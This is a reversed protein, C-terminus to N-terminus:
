TTRWSPLLPPATRPAQAHCRLIAPYRAANIGLAAWVVGAGTGARARALARSEERRALAGGWDRSDNVVALRPRRATLVCRTLVAMAVPSHTPVCRIAGDADTQM